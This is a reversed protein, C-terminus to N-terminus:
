IEFLLDGNTDIDISFQRECPQVNRGRAVLTVTYRQGVNIRNYVTALAYGLYIGDDINSKYVVDVFQSPGPGPHLTFMYPRQKDDPIGILNMVGLPMPGFRIEQPSLKEISVYVDEITSTGLNRVGVRFLTTTGLEETQENRTWWSMTCSKYEDPDFVLELKSIMTEQILVLQTRAEDRQVKPARFWLVLFLCVLILVPGILKSVEAIAEPLNAPAFAALIAAMVVFM